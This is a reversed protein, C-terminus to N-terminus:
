KIRNKSFRISEEYSPLGKLHVLRIILMELSLIPNSVISLEELVKLILQWFVILTPMSVNESISNIIQQEAKQYLYIQILIELIKKKSCLIYIELFDNLFIIPQIVKM